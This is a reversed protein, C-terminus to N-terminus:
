LLGKSTDEVAELSDLSQYVLVRGMCYSKHSWRLSLDAEANAYDSWPRRQDYAGDVAEPSDLSLYVFVTAMSYPPVPKDSDKSPSWTKSYTKNHAPVIPSLLWNVGKIVKQLYGPGILQIGRSKDNTNGNLIVKKRWLDLKFLTM